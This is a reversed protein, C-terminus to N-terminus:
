WIMGHSGKGVRAQGDRKRQRVKNGRLLDKLGMLLMSIFTLGIVFAILLIVVIPFYLSVDMFRKWGEPDPLTHGTENSVEIVALTVQMSNLIVSCVAFTTILPALIHSLFSGWQPLLHFYALNFRFLLAARNIRSLRLEGYHYRRNVSNDGVLSFPEIFECWEEYTPFEGDDKRPILKKECAEHFDIEFRIIHYYSRMFGLSAEYVELDAHAIYMWFARSFFYPPIPKMFITEYYWVLHLGPEEDVVIKRTHAAHHHLANIHDYAPTQVFVYRMLPLLRDLKETLHWRRLYGDLKGEPGDVHQPREGLRIRPQGPLYSKKPDTSTSKLFWPTPQNSNRKEGDQVRVYELQSNLEIALGEFEFFTHAGGNPHPPHKKNAEITTPSILTSVDKSDPPPTSLSVPPISPRQKAQSQPRTSTSTQTAAM